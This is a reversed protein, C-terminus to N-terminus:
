ESIEAGIAFTGISSDNMKIYFYGDQGWGTGWSNKVIWYNIGNSVGWGVILVFHGGQSRRERALHSYIGDQYYFFSRYVEMRCSVPKNYTYIWAKILNNYYNSPRGTPNIWKWSKIKAKIQYNKCIGKEATYPYDVEKCTGKEMLFNFARDLYWGDCTGESCDLVAQESLPLISGKTQIYLSELNATSSFAWCSGCNGQDEVPSILNYDRLDYFSPYIAFILDDDPEWINQVDIEEEPTALGGLLKLQDALTKKSISTEGAIWSLGERAIEENLEGLNEAYVISTTLIIILFIFIARGCRIKKIEIEKSM